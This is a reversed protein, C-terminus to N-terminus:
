PRRWEGVKWVSNMKSVISYFTYPVLWVIGLIGYKILFVNQNPSKVYCILHIKQVFNILVIKYRTYGPNLSLKTLLPSHYVKQSSKVMKSHPLIKSAAPVTAFTPELRFDFWWIFNDQKDWDRICLTYHAVRENLAVCSLDAYVLKSTMEVTHTLSKSM